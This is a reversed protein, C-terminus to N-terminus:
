VGVPDGTARLAAVVHTVVEDAFEPTAEQRDVVRRREELM